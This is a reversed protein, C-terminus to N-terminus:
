NGEPLWVDVFINVAEAIKQNVLKPIHINYEKLQIEFKSKLMIGNEKIEIKGKIIRDISVGHLTLKGKVRINLSSVKNWDIAEIIQGSFTAYPFKDGEVFNEYFHIRQLESNFGKFSSVPIKIAIENRQLNLAVEAASSSAVVTELPAVSMFKIVGNFCKLIPRNQVAHVSWSMQIFIFAIITKSLYSM